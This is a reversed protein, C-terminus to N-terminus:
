PPFFTPNGLEVFHVQALAQVNADAVAGTFTFRVVDGVATVTLTWGTPAPSEQNPAMAAPAGVVTAAGGVMYALFAADWEAWKTADADTVPDRDHAVMEVRIKYVKSNELLLESDNFGPIGGVNMTTAAGAASIAFLGVDTNQADGRVSSQVMGHASSIPFRARGTAGEVHSAVGGFTTVLDGAVTECDIGEAHSGDAAAICLGGEAHSPFIAGSATTGSGEAHCGDGSATCLNGEAHSAIGSAVTTSGEAHSSAGSALTDSNQSHSELGTAQSRGEAHSLDGDATSEGQAFSEIGNALGVNFAASGDGIAGGLNAAFAAIGNANASGFAASLDGIADGENTAFSRVGSAEGPGLCVAGEASADAALGIAVAGDGSPASSQVGLVVAGVGIGPNGEDGADNNLGGVTAHRSFVFNGNGGVITSGDADPGIRQDIGGGITAFSAFVGDDTSGGSKSAFNNAGDIGPGVPSQCNKRNTRVNECTGGDFVVAIGGAASGGGARLPEEGVRTNAIPIVEAVPDM